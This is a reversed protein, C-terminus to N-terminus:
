LGAKRTSKEPTRCSFFVMSPRMPVWSLCTVFAPISVPFSIPLLECYFLLCGVIFNCDGQMSLCLTLTSGVKYSPAPVPVSVLQVLGSLTFGLGRQKACLQVTTSNGLRMGSSAM